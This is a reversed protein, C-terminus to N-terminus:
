MASKGLQYGKGRRQKLKNMLQANDRVSFLDKLNELVVEIVQEIKTELPRSKPAFIAASPRDPLYVGLELGRKYYEFTPCRSLCGSQAVAEAPPPCIFDALRGLAELFELFTLARSREYKKTSSCDDVSIMRSWVFALKAEKDTFYGHIIKSEYVLEM